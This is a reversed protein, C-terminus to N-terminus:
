SRSIEKRYAHQTKARVFGLRDYFLHSEIRVVNSRVAVQELGRMAAWAEVATVLERGVGRGRYEADVVLGLIECHRGSELLEHEAGHIWGVIRDSAAIALLVVHDTRALLRALRDALDETTVPYGLIASLV